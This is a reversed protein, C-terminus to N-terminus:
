EAPILIKMDRRKSLPQIVTTEEMIEILPSRMSGTILKLAKNHVKDLTYNSIKSASSCTASRYDLHPCITGIYVNKLLAEAAGCQTGALKRLLVLKRRANTETNSINPKWTQRKDVIVGLYMASDIHQLETHNLIIKVPKLKTLLTFLTTLTKNRNIKVCWENAWNWLVNIAKFGYNDPYMVSMLFTPVEKKVLDNKFVIFLTSSPVGGQPVGNRLHIRRSRNNDIYIIQCM